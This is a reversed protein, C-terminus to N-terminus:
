LSYYSASHVTFTPILSQVQLSQELPHIGRPFGHRRSRPISADTPDQAKRGADHDGRTGIVRAFSRHRDLYARLRVSCRCRRFGASIM